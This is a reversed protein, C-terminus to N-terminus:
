ARAAKLRDLIARERAAVEAEADFGFNEISVKATLVVDCLEKIVDSLPGAPKRPNVNHFAILAEAAEGVEEALKTVRMMQTYKDARDLDDMATLQDAIQAVLSGGSGDREPM